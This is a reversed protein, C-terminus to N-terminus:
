LSCTKYIFSGGGWKLFLGGNQADGGKRFIGSIGSLTIPIDIKWLIHDNPVWCIDDVHPWQFSRSPSSPDMFKVQMDEEEKDVNIIIVWWKNNYICSVYDLVQVVSNQKTQNKFNHVYSPKKDGSKIKMEISNQDIPSFEYFSRTGPIQTVGEFRENLIVRTNDVDAKSILKSVINQINEKCFQFM